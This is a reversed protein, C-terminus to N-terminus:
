VAREAVYERLYNRFKSTDTAFQLGINHNGGSGLAAYTVTGVVEIKMTTSNSIAQIDMYLNEGVKFPTASTLLVGGLSINMAKTMFQQKKANVVRVKWPCPARVDKRRKRPDGAESM